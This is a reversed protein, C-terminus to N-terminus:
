KRHIGFTIYKATHKFIELMRSKAFALCYTRHQSSRSKPYLEFDIGNKSKTQSKTGPGVVSPMLENSLFTACGDRWLGGAM